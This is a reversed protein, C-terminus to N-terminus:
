RLITVSSADHEKGNLTWQVAVREGVKLGPDKFGTPLHYVTGGDLIITHAAMDVAKITGDSLSSAMAMPAALVLGAFLSPVLFARM